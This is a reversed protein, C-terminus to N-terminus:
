PGPVPIEFLLSSLSCLTSFELDENRVGHLQMRFRLSGEIGRENNTVLHAHTLRSAVGYSETEETTEQEWRRIRPM